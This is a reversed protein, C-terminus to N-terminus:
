KGIHVIAGNLTGSVQVVVDGPKQSQIPGDVVVIRSGMPEKVYASKGPGLRIIDDGDKLVLPAGSDNMLSFKVVKSKVIAASAFLDLHGAGAHAAQPAMMTLAIFMSSISAISKMLREEQLFCILVCM